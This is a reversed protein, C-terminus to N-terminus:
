REVMELLVDTMGHRDLLARIREAHQEDVTAAILVANAGVIHLVQWGYASHFTVYM